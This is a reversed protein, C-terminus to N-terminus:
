FFLISKLERYRNLRRRGYSIYDSSDKVFPVQALAWLGFCLHSLASFQDILHCIKEPDDFPLNRAQYYIKLWRCQEDRMPYRDFDIQEVGAYEVFHNAIDFLAYNIACYEFDILFVSQSSSDYLINKCVADNHCLVLDIGYQLYPFLRPLIDKEVWEVDSSLSIYDEPRTHDNDILTLFKQMLPILCPKQNKNKLPISHLKALQRAILPVIRMDRIDDRTCIEGTIFKYIVGNAFQLLVPQALQYKSLYRLTDLEAHRDIFEETNSGFIKIVLAESSDFNDFLGFTTNNIGGTFQELHTNYPSWNPRLTAILAFIETSLSAVSLVTSSVLPQAM